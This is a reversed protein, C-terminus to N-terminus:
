SFVAGPIIFNIVAVMLSFFIIGIIVNRIIGRGENIRGQDNEASAYIFGGYALGCVAVVGILGTLIKITMSLVGYLGSKEVDKTSGTYGQKDCEIIATEVGGCKATDAALTTPSTFVSLLSVFVASALSIITIQKIKMIYM